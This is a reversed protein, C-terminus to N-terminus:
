RGSASGVWIRVPSATAGDVEVTVRHDGPTPIWRATFPPGVEAVVTGDVIWRGQTGAASARLPITQESAPRATDLWFSAGPAPYQVVPARAGAAPAVSAGNAAAWPAYLAPVTTGSPGHWTCAARVAGAPIWEQLGGGCWRTAGEGSLPCVATRTLRPAGEPDQPPRPAATSRGQMARDAVRRLIPAAGTTGGVEGMPRGDFNGVWVGVTVAPNTGFAWNDRWGSSTGTKAAWPYGPELDTGRGFAAARADDDDLADFVLFASIPSMVPIPAARPADARLRLPAVRGQDSLAAYAATLADLRVEGSGVVLALGYRAPADDLTDLGLARLRELVAGVGLSDVLRIAPLNLSQALAARMRVPGGATRQYNHPRWSGHPTRWTGPMDPLVDALTTGSRELALGYVFPKLASGPSRLAVAGDVQGDPARWDASGVYALVERSATDLVVVAAQSVDRSALVRLERRVIGEVDRQLAADLSSRVVGGRPPSGAVIRRVVHPADGPNRGARLALPEALATSAQDVRIWGLELARRLVRDRAARVRAPAALPDLEAPRRPIAALTACQALSLAALPSDFYARAAQEAGLVGNGYWIRSVYAALIADKDLHAELRVALVAESVKGILGPRRPVLARALQQTVTSGGQRVRGARLNVWAARAVGVPDVGPHWRFRHDEAALVMRALDAPVRRVEGARLGEVTPRAQLVRGERDQVEPGEVPALLDSPLPWVCAAVGVAAVAGVVARGLRRPNM